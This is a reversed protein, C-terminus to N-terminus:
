LPVLFCAHPQMHPWCASRTCMHGSSLKALLTLRLGRGCSPHQLPGISSRVTRLDELTTSRRVRSSLECLPRGCGTWSISSHLDLDAVPAATRCGWAVPLMLPPRSRRGPANDTRKAEQIQLGNGKAGFRAGSGQAKGMRCWTMAKRCARMKRCPQRKESAADLWECSGPRLCPQIPPRFTSRDSAWHRSKLAASGCSAAALAAKTRSDRPTLASECAHLKRAHGM